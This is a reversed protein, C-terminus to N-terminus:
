PQVAAMPPPPAQAAQVQAAPAPEPASAQSCATLLTGALLVSLLSAARNISRSNFKMKEKFRQKANAFEAERRIAPTQGKSARMVIMSKETARYQVKTCHGFLRPM